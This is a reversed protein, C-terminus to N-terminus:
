GLRPDSSQIKNARKKIWYCVFYQNNPDMFNHADPDQGLLVNLKRGSVDGGTHTGKM